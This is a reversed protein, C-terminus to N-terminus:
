KKKVQKADIDRNIKIRGFTYGTELLGFITCIMGKTLKMPVAEPVEDKNEESNPQQADGASAGAQLDKDEVTSEKVNSGQLDLTSVAEDILNKEM